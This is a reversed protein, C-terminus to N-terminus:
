NFNSPLSKPVAICPVPEASLKSLCVVIPVYVMEAVGVVVSVQVSVMAPLTTITALWGGCIVVLAWGFLVQSPCAMLRDVVGLAVPEYKHVPGFPNVDVLGVGIM